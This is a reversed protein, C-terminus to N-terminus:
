FFVAGLVDDVTDAAKAWEVESDLKVTKKPGSAAFTLSPLPDAIARCNETATAVALFRQQAEEDDMEVFWGYAEKEYHETGEINPLTPIELVQAAQASTQTLNNSSCSSASVTAPLTPFGIAILSDSFVEDVIRAATSDVSVPHVDPVHNNDYSTLTSTATPCASLLCYSTGHTKGNNGRLRESFKDSPCRTLPSLSIRAKKMPRPDGRSSNTLYANSCSKGAPESSGTFALHDEEHSHVDAIDQFIGSLFDTNVNMGPSPCADNFMTVKRKKLQLCQSDDEALPNSTRALEDGRGLCMDQSQTFAQAVDRALQSNSHSVRMSCSFRDDCLDPEQNQRTCLSSQPSM